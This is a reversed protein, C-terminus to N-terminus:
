FDNRRHGDPLGLIGELNERLATLYEGFFGKQIRCAQPHEKGESKKCSWLSYMVFSYSLFCINGKPVM